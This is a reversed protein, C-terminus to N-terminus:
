ASPVQDSAAAGPGRIATTGAVQIGPTPNERYEAMASEILEVYEPSELAHWARCAVWEEMMTQSELSETAVTLVAQRALGHAGVARARVFNARQTNTFDIWLNALRFRAVDDLPEGRRASTWIRALDEHEMLRGRWLGISESHRDVASVRELRNSEEMARTSHRVQILLIWLTALVAAAGIIEGIAGIAEWNM